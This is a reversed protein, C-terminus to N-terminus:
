QVVRVTSWLTQLEDHHREKWARTDEWRNRAGADRMAYHRIVLNDADVSVSGSQLTAFHSTDFGSVLRPRVISKGALIDVDDLLRVSGLYAESGRWLYRSTTLVEGEQEPEVRDSFQWWPVRLAAVSAFRPEHLLDVLTTAVGALPFLFEDVDVVALWETDDVHALLCDNIASLQRWYSAHAWPTLTVTGSAVRSALVAATDDQSADDFLHFRSVGLREHWALWEDLNAAEDRIVACITLPVRPAPPPSLCVDCFEVSTHESLPPSASLVRGYDRVLTVHTSHTHVAVVLCRFLSLQAADLRAEVVFRNAVRWELRAAPWSDLVSLSARDFLQGLLRLRAGGDSGSRDLRASHVALPDLAPAARSGNFILHVDLRVDDAHSRECPRATALLAVLVVSLTSIMDCADRRRRPPPPSENTLKESLSFGLAVANTAGTPVGVSGDIKEAAGRGAGDDDNDNDGLTTM